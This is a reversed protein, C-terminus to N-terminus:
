GLFDYDRTPTPESLVQFLFGHDSAERNLNMVTLIRGKVKAVPCVTQLDQPL